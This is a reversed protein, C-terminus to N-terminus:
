TPDFLSLVEAATLSGLLQNETTILTDVLERKRQQLELMKEEITDRTILRYALVRNSQGIRHSRDIAQTEVAPNWWPDFLIVYDAATLNLGLGGAKLSLFFVDREGAQFAEVEQQRDSLKTSGDLYAYSNGHGQYRTVIRQLCQVFQSFVLVQHGEAVIEQLMDDLVEAKASEVAAFDPSALVPFLAMQRLKLLADLVHIRSRAIGREALTKGLNERLTASLDRYAREQQPGMPVSIVLEQKEPIEPAVEEKKRRLILPQVRRRLQEAVEQNGHREIPTAYRRKFETLGGLWGPNLFDLQAWLETSRNEIPTGTLALRHQARISRVAKFTATTPNKIQQSEDLVLYRFDIAALLEIDRRLTHYSTITLHHATLQAASSTRDAGLHVLVDLDTTFRAVEREWNPITSVPAVILSPTLEGAEDLRQLLALTQVTKGLGMDDALCGGIGLEHLLNLWQHGQEQYPRLTGRFGPALDYEGIPEAGSLRAVVQHIAQLGEQEQNVVTQYLEDILTIDSSPVRLHGDAAMGEALYAALQTADEAGLLVYGDGARVIGLQPDFDALDLPRANGDDLVANFGFWDIGSTARLAVRGDSRSVTKGGELQLRFGDDVFEGAHKGLWKNIGASINFENAALPSWPPGYRSTLQRHDGSSLKDTLLQLIRAEYAPDRRLVVAEAASSGPRVAVVDSQNSVPEAVMTGDYSFVLRLAVVNPLPSEVILIAEPVCDVVSVQQPEHGIEINPEAIQRLHEIEAASLAAYPQLLASLVQASQPGGRRSWLTGDVTLVLLLDGYASVSYNVGDSGAGPGITTPPGGASARLQLRPLFRGAKELVTATDVSFAVQCDGVTRMTVPVPGGQPEADITAPSNASGGTLSHDQLYLLGEDLRALQDLHHAADGSPGHSLLRDRLLAAQDPATESEHEQRYKELRGFSGDMKLYQLAPMLTITNGSAGIAFVLRWRQGSQPPRHPQRGLGRQEWGHTDAATPSGAARAYRPQPKGVGDPRLPNELPLPPAHRHPDSGSVSRLTPHPAPQGRASAARALLTAVVHKCDSDMPCTCSTELYGPHPPLRIVAQYPTRRTGQVVGTIGTPKTSLSVVRGEQLYGYGRAFTTADYYDEIWAADLQM